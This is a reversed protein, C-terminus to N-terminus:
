VKRLKVETLELICLLYFRLSYKESPNQPPIINDVHQLKVSLKNFLESLEAFYQDKLSKVQ